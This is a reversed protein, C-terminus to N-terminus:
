IINIYKPVLVEDAEVFYNPEFVIDENVFFSQIRLDLILVNSIKILEHIDNYIFSSGSGLLNVYNTVINKVNNKIENKKQESASSDFLIEMTIEMPVSKPSDIEFTTGFSVAKELSIRVKRKIEEAEFGIEPIITILFTGPGKHYPKLIAARVGPVSEANIRISEENGRAQVKIQQTIEYRYKEDDILVDEYSSRTENYTKEKRRKLAFMEGIFDLYPGKASSIYSILISEEINEYLGEIQQGVSELITKAISGNVFNTINTNEELLKKMEAVAIAKSKKIIM